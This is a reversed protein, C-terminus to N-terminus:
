GLHSRSDVLRCELRTGPVKSALHVVVYYYYVRREVVRGELVEPRGFSYVVAEGPLSHM